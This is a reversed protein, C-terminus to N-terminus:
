CARLYVPLTCSADRYLYHVVGWEDIIKAQVGSGPNESFLANVVTNLAFCAAGCKMYARQDAKLESNKNNAFSGLVFLTLLVIKTADFSKM